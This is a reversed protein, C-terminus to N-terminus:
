QNCQNNFIKSIEEQNCFNTIFKAAVERMAKQTLRLFLADESEFGPSSRYGNGEIRWSSIQEGDPTYFKIEYIILIFQFTPVPLNYTYSYVTPEIILDINKINASIESLDQIPTYKQFFNSLIYNFLAINAKGIQVNFIQHRYGTLELQTSFKNGYYVGVSLQLPKILPKPYTGIEDIKIENTHTTSCGTMISIAAFYISLIFLLRKV